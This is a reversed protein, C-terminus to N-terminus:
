GRYDAILNAMGQLREYRDRDCAGLGYIVVEYSRAFDRFRSVLISSRANLERVYDGITKSEHLTLEGRRAITLLLGAYLAHAAATYDGRAALLRAVSWADEPERIGPYDSAQVGRLGRLRRWGYSWRALLGLLAVTVLILIIWFVPDPLTGPRLWNFFAQLQDLLWGGIRQLLTSRKYVPDSFVAAVTDRIVPEPLQLLM